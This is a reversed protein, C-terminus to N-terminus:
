QCAATGTASYSGTFNSGGGGRAGGTVFQKYNEPTGAHDSNLYQSQSNSDVPKIGLANPNGSFSKYVAAGWQWNVSVGHTDSSITGQWAVPNIGGPLGGVPVAFAVGSLFQNGPGALPVTTVWMNLVTNFTTTASTATPSYTIQADAV